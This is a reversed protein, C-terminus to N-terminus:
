WSEHLHDLGKQQLDRCTDHVTATCLLKVLITFFHSQGPFRSAERFDVHLSGTDAPLIAPHLYRLLSHASWILAGSAYNVWHLLWTCRFLCYFDIAESMIRSLNLWEKVSFKGYYRRVTDFFDSDKRACHVILYCTYYSVLFSTFTIFCGIVLGAQQFAWPLSVVASGMMTKWFSFIIVM